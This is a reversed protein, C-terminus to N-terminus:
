EFIADVYIGSDNVTVDFYEGDPSELLMAKFDQKEINVYSEMGAITARVKLPTKNILTVLDKNLM